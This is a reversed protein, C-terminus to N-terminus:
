AEMAMPASGATYGAGAQLGGEVEDEYEEDADEMAADDNDCSWMVGMQPQGVQIDIDDDDEDDEDSSEDNAQEDNPDPNLASMESFAVFMNQLHGADAPVFRMEPIEPEEDEDANASDETRLQCYLCPEPWSAPDRSVAHVAIFPYDISYGINQEEPGLWVIRQNTLHLAGEGRAESNTFFKVRPESLRIEEKELLVPLGNQRAPSAQVPM